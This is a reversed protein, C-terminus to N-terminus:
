DFISIMLILNHSFFEEHVIGIRAVVFREAVFSIIAINDIRTIRERSDIRAITRSGVVMNDNCFLCLSIIDDEDM